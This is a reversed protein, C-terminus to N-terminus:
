FKIVIRFTDPKLAEQYAENAQDASYVNSILKDPYIIRKSLLKVAQEFSLISPSVAGTVIAESNHLWNASIDFPIDPHQSSYMVVRGLKAVMDVAQKAVSSVATTNFIVEAGIGNTIKKIEEVPDVESPDIVIDAGLELGLERREKNPESLIVRCGMKKALMIHLMGMIGGGIVVVDDGMQPLGHNFSNAVCALPESFVGIENPLDNPLKWLIKPEVILYENLGGTGPIASVISDRENTRECLNPANHRCYYCEGCSNLLRVAVKQGIPYRAPDLGEGLEAIEAVVEHGGVFPFPIKVVGSYMRQDFTCLACAKINILIKKPGPKPKDVILTEVKGVETVAIVKMKENSM